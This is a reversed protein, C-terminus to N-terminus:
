RLDHQKCNYFSIKNHQCYIYVHGLHHLGKRKSALQNRNRQLSEATNTNGVSNGLKLSRICSQSNCIGWAGEIIKSWHASERKCQSQKLIIEINTFVYPQSCLSQIGWSRPGPAITLLHSIKVPYIWLSRLLCTFQFQIYSIKGKFVLCHKEM